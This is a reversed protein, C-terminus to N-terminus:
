LKERAICLGSSNKIVETNMEFHIHNESKEHSEALEIKSNKSVYIDQGKHKSIRCSLIDSETSPKTKLSLIEDFDQNIISQIINTELGIFYFARDILFTNGIINKNKTRSRSNIFSDTLIIKEFNNNILPFKDLSKYDSIFEISKIRNALAISLFSQKSLLSIISHYFYLRKLLKIKEPSSDFDEILPDVLWSQLNNTRDAVTIIGICSDRSYNYKKKFGKDKKKDLIKKKQTSVKSPKKSNDDVISGKAEINIFRDPISSAHSFDFDKHVTTIPIRTWDAQSMNYIESAVSLGGAVGLMESVDTVEISEPFISVLKNGKLEFYSDYHGWNQAMPKLDIFTQQNGNPKKYQHRFFAYTKFDELPINVTEGAIEKLLIYDKPFNNKILQEQKKDYFDVKIKVINM